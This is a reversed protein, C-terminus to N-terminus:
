NEDSIKKHRKLRYVVIPSSWKFKKLKKPCEWPSRPPVDKGSRSPVNM